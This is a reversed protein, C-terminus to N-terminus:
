RREALDEYAAPDVLPKGHNAAPSAGHPTPKMALITGCIVGAVGVMGAAVWAEHQQAVFAIGLASIPVWLGILLGPSQQATPESGPLPHGLELARMRETHELERQRRAHRLGLVTPALVLLSIGALVLAAIVAWTPAAGRIGADVQGLLFIPSDFVPM